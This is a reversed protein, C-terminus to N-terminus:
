DHLNSAILTLYNAQYKPLLRLISKKSFIPQQKLFTQLKLLSSADVEAWQNKQRAFYIQVLIKNQL